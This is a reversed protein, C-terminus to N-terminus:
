ALITRGKDTTILNWGFLQHNITKGQIKANRYHM